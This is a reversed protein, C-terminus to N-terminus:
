TPVFRHDEPDFLAIDSVAEREGGKVFWLGM